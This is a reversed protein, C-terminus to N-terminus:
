EPVRVVLTSIVCFFYKIYSTAVAMLKLHYFKLLVRCSCKFEETKLQAQLEPDLYSDEAGCLGGSALRSITQFSFM